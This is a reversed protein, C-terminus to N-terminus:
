ILSGNGFSGSVERYFRSYPLRLFRLFVKVQTPLIPDSTSTHEFTALDLRTFPPLLRTPSNWERELDPYLVRFHFRALVTQGSLDPSHPVRFDMYLAKTLEGAKPGQGSRHSRRLKTAVEFTGVDKEGKWDVIEVRGSGGWDGGASTVTAELDCRVDDGPGFVPPDFGANSTWGSLFVCIPAAPLPLVAVAIWTLSRSTLRGPTVVGATRGQSRQGLYTGVIILLLLLLAIGRPLVSALNAVVVAAGLLPM